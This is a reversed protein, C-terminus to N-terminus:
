NKKIWAHIQFLLMSLLTSFAVFWRTSNPQGLHGSPTASWGFHLRGAQTWARKWPKLHWRTACRTCTVDASSPHWPCLPTHDTLKPGVPWIKVWSAKTRQCKTPTTRRSVNEQSSTLGNACPHPQYVLTYWGRMIFPSILGKKIEKWVVTSSFVFSIKFIFSAFIFQLV